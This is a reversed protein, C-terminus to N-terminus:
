GHKPRKEIIYGTIPAGGDKKPATWELDVHDKDWDTAHPQGPKDPKTFPDKATISEATTLPTSEGLKNVARVRFKYDHGEVLHDVRLSTGVAEGAPVWRMNETDLKEVAYHTIEAGGDDKPPRWRLTLSNKTVNDAVLPGEPPTPVDMVVVKVTATDKGNRNKVILTYEGSDTRKAETIKLRTNYDENTIKIRDGAIILNEKVFWEKSPPPEGSVPINFEFNQGVRIKVNIM